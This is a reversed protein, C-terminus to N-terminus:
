RDDPTAVLGRLLASARRLETLGEEQEGNAFCARAVDLASAADHLAAEPPLPQRADELSGILAFVVPFRCLDCDGGALDRKLAALHEDSISFGLAAWKATAIRFEDVYAFDTM